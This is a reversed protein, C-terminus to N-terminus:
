RIRISRSSVFFDSADSVMNVLGSFELPSDFCNRSGAVILAGPLFPLSSGLHFYVM